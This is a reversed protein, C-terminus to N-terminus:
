VRVRAGVAVRVRAGVAVRVRARARVDVGVRVRVRARITARLLRELRPIVHANALEHVPAMEGKAVVILYRAGM